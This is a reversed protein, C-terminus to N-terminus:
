GWLQKVAALVHIRTTDLLPLDSATNGTLLLPLETGALIIGQARDREKMAAVIRILRDRTEQLFVDRLLEGVYKEHIFAQEEDHPCVPEIGSKSFVDPYFRGQM